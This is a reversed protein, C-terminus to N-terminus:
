WVQPSTGVLENNFNLGTEDNWQFSDFSCGNYVNIDPCDKGLILPTSRHPIYAVSRCCGSEVGIKFAANKIEPFDNALTRCLLSEGKSIDVNKDDHKASGNTGWSVEGNSKFYATDVATCNWVGDAVTINLIESSDRKMGYGSTDANTLFIDVCDFVDNAKSNLINLASHSLYYSWFKENNNINFNFSEGSLIADIKASERYKEFLEKDNLNKCLEEEYM